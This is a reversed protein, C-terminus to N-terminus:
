RNGELPLLFIGRWHGAKSEAAGGASAASADAADEEVRDDVLEERLLSHRALPAQRPATVVFLQLAADFADALAVGDKIAQEVMAELRAVEKSLEDRVRLTRALEDEVIPDRRRMAELSAPSLRRKPQQLMRRKM